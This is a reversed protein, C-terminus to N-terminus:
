QDLFTAIEDLSPNVAIILGTRDILYQAGGGNSIGYKEWIKNEDSIELYSTWPYNYKKLADIALEKKNVGGIVGIVELKDTLTDYSEKVLKSKRICPGCWPAWLDLLVFKQGDILRSLNISKDDLTKITIDVFNGGTKISSLATYLNNARELLPHDFNRRTHHGHYEKFVDAPIMMQDANNLLEVYENLGLISTDDKLYEYHYQLVARNISDLRVKADQWKESGEESQFFASFINNGAEMFQSGFSFQYSRKREGLLDGTITNQEYQESPYLSFEIQTSNPFFVINKWMGKSLDSKYALVYEEIFEHSLTYEATHNNRVPIETGHYRFDELSKTLILTDAEINNVHILLKTSDQSVASLTLASFIIIQLYKM